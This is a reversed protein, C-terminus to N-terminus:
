AAAVAPESVIPPPVAEKDREIPTVLDKGINLAAYIKEEIEKAM